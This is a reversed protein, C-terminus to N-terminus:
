VEFRHYHKPIKGKVKLRLPGIPLGAFGTEIWFGTLKVVESKGVSTSCAVM